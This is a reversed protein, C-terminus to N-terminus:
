ADQRQRDAFFIDCRVSRHRVDASFLVGDTGPRGLDGSLDPIPRLRYVGGVTFVPNDGFM